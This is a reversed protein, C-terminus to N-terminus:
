PSALGMLLVLIPVLQISGFALVGLAYATKSMPMTILLKLRRQFRDQVLQDSLSNATIMAVGFVM